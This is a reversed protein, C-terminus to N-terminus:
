DWTRDRDRVWCTSRLVPGQVSCVMTGELSETLERLLVIDKRLSFYARLCDGSIPVLAASGTIIRSNPGNLDGSEPETATETEAENGIESETETEIATGVEAEIATAAKLRLRLRM